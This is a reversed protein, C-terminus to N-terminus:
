TGILSGDGQEVATVFNQSTAPTVGNQLHGAIVLLAGRCIGPLQRYAVLLQAEDPTLSEGAVQGTLVYAIDAGSDAIAQLYDTTPPTRGSEYAEQSARSVGGLAGFKEQSLGTKRREERLRKGLGAKM